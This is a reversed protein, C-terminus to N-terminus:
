AATRRDRSQGRMLFLLKARQEPTAPPAADVIARIAAEWEPPCSALREPKDDESVSEGATGARATPSPDRPAGRSLRQDDRRRVM